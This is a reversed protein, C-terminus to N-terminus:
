FFQRERRLGAGSGRQRRPEGRRGSWGRGSRVAERRPDRRLDLTLGPAESSKGSAGSDQVRAGSADLSVDVVRGDADQGSLKVGLTAADSVLPHLARALMRRALATSRANPELGELAGMDLELSALLAARPLAVDRYHVVLTDPEIRLQIATCGTLLNGAEVLLPIVLAVDAIRREALKTQASALDLSFNGVAVLAGGDLQQVLESAPLDTPADSVRPPYRLASPEARM